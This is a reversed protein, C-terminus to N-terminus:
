GREGREQGERVGRRGTGLADLAVWVTGAHELEEEVPQVGRTPPAWGGGGTAVESMCGVGVRGDARVARGYM